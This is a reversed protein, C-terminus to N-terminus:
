AAGHPVDSSPWGDMAHGRTGDAQQASKCAARFQRLCSPRLRTTWPLGCAASPRRRSRHRWPDRRPGTGATRASCHRRAPGRGHGAAVAPRRESRGKRAGARRCWPAFSGVPASRADARPTLTYQLSRGWHLAQPMAHAHARRAAKHLHDVLQRNPRGLGHGDVRCFWRLDTLGRWAVGRWAVGRWAVGRWAVGRWAVSHVAPPCRQPM